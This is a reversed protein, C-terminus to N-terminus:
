ADVSQRGPVTVTRIFSQPQPLVMEQSQDLPVCGTRGQGSPIGVRSNGNCYSSPISKGVSDFCPGGTVPGTTGDGWDIFTMSLRPPPRVAIASKYAKLILVLMTGATAATEAVLRTAINLAVPFVNVVIAELGARNDGSKWRYIKTLELLMSLGVYVQGVDNSLLYSMMLDTFEPWEGPYDTTLIRSLIATFQARLSPSAGVLCQILSPRFIAKDHASIPITSNAEANADGWAKSIRYKM